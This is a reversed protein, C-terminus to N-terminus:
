RIVDSLLILSPLLPEEAGIFGLMDCASGNVGFLGSDNIVDPVGALPVPTSVCIGKGLMRLCDGLVSRLDTDKTSSGITQGIKLVGEPEMVVGATDFDVKM